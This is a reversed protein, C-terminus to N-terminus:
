FLSFSEISRNRIEAHTATTITSDRNTPVTKIQRHPSIQFSSAYELYELCLQSTEDTVVKLSRFDANLIM